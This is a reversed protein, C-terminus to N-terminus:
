RLYDLLSPQIAKGASMLAAKYVTDALSFETTAEAIDTDEAKSLLSKLGEQVLYQRDQAAAIRNTKAGIDSRAVLVGDIAADLATLDAGGVTSSRGAQVDDRLTILASFVAPFATSGPTNIPVTAGVDIERQMQGADGTYTVSTPNNGGVEAFPDADTKLGAFLRQGRLKSNGLMVIHHLLENLENAVATRDAPDLTDNAGQVALERARQLSQGVSGLTDDSANLWATAADMNRLYQDGASINARYTMARAVAPPDDSPLSLRKGTSLQREVTELRQLNGRIGSLASDTLMTETIRM